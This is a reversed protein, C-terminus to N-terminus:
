LDGGIPRLILEEPLARDPLELLRVVAQAVDEPQMMRERHKGRMEESWIDTETAGPIIGIVKIGKTRVEDRVSEIMGLAGHKSTVYAAGNLYARKSSTSLIEVITGKGRELMGALVERICLFHGTLNTRITDDFEEISVKSFPLWGGGGANNILIDPSRGLVTRIQAVTSRIEEENRIDCPVALAEVGFTQLEEVLSVLQGESRASAAVDRGSRALALAISRGIGKSAGTVWAIDRIGDM